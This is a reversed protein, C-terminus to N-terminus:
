SAAWYKWCTKRCSQFFGAAALAAGSQPSQPIPGVPRRGSRRTATKGTIVAGAQKIAVVVYDDTDPVNSEFAKSGMTRRVGAVM